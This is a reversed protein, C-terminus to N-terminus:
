AAAIAEIEILWAPDWIGTIIVTLAPEHGGLVERRVASNVEAHARDSLFTTVKVLNSVDMGAERLVATLNSWALRCQAEIDEPVRGERDQPIQGSVFLMREAGRVELGNVYGGVAEPVSSPNIASIEMSTIM